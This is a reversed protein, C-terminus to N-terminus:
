GERKGDKWRERKSVIRGEIRGEKETDNGM